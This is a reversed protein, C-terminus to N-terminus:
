ENGIKKQVPNFPHLQEALRKLTNHLRSKVTGQPIGLVESIEAITKEEQYRLIFCFRHKEDLKNIASQLHTNFIEKDINQPAKPDSKKPKGALYIMPKSRSHRRYENKCMNSAISYLWTSFKLTPNFSDAKDFVKMFLTQCFDAALEEDQYLMKYFFRYLQEAYRNYLEDFAAENGKSIFIVLDQDSYQNYKKNFLKL